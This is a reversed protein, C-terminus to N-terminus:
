LAKRLRDIARQMGLGSDADWNEVVARAAERLESCKDDLEPYKPYENSEVPANCKICYDGGFTTVPVHACEDTNTPPTPSAYLPFTFGWKPQYTFSVPTTGIPEATDLMWCYPESSTVCEVTPEVKEAADLASRLATYLPIGNKYIHTDVDEDLVVQACGDLTFKWAVPEVKEAADLANRFEEALDRAECPNYEANCRGGCISEAFDLAQKVVEEDILIKTM